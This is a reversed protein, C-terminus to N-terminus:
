GLHHYPPLEAFVLALLMSELAPQAKTCCALIKVKCRNPNALACEVSMAVKLKSPLYLISLYNLSWALYSYSVKGPKM